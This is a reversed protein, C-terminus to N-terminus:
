LYRQVVSCLRVLRQKIGKLALDAGQEHNPKLEEKEKDTLNLLTIYYKMCEVAIKKVKDLDSSLVKGQLLHETVKAHIYGELYAFAIGKIQLMM